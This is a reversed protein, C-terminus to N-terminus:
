LFLEKDVYDAIAAKINVALYKLHKIRKHQRLFTYYLNVTELM